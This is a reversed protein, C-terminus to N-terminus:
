KDINEQFKLLLVVAVLEPIEDFEWRWDKV